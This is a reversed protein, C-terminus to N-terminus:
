ALYGHALSFGPCAKIDIPEITEVVRLMSPRDEDEILAERKERQAEMVDDYTRSGSKAINEMAVKTERELPAMGRIAADCIAPRLDVTLIGNDLSIVSDGILAFDLYDMEAQQVFAKREAGAIPPMNRKRVGAAREQFRQVMAATDLTNM